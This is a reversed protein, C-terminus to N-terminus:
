VAPVRPVYTEFLAGTKEPLLPKKRFPGFHNPDYPVRSPLVM